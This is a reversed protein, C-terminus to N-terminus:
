VKYAPRNVSPSATAILGRASIEASIQKLQEVGRATLFFTASPFKKNSDILRSEVLHQVDAAAAAEAHGDLYHLRYVKRGELDREAKLACGDALAILIALQRGTLRM